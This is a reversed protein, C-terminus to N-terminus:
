QRRAYVINIVAIATWILLTMVIRPGSSAGSVISTAGLGLAISGLATVVTAVQHGVIPAPRAPPPGPQYGPPLAPGQYGQYGQYASYGAPAQQGQSGAGAGAAGSPGAGAGSPGPTGNATGPGLHVASGGPGALGAAGIQGLRADIRKDIETGIREVLGEAVADDYGSGLDQHAAVSARIEAEHDSNM